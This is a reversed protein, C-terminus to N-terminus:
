SLTVRFIGSGIISAISFDRCRGVAAGALKARCSGRSHHASLAGSLPIHQGALVPRDVLPTACLNEETCAYAGPALFVSGRACPDIVVAVAEGM